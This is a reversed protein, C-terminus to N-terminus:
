RWRRARSTTASFTIRWCASVKTSPATPEGEVTVEAVIMPAYDRVEVAGFNEVVRYQPQESAMTPEAFLAATLFTLALRRGIIL